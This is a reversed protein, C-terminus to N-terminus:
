EPRSITPWGAADWILLDVRLTPTGRANADYAHYVLKESNGDQLIACHGPGKWRESGTVVITGGGEMM